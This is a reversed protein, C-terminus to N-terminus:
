TPDFFGSLPRGRYHLPQYGKTAAWYHATSREIQVCKDGFKSTSQLSYDRWADLEVHFRSGLVWPHENVCRTQFLRDDM